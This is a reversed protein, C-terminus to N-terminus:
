LWRFKIQEHKIRFYFWKRFTWSSRWKQRKIERIRRNTFGAILGAIGKHGLVKIATERLCGFYLQRLENLNMSVINLITKSNIHSLKSINRSIKSALEKDKIINLLKISLLINQYTWNWKVEDIGIDQSDTFVSWDVNNLIKDNDEGYESSDEDEMEQRNIDININDQIRLTMNEDSPINGEVSLGTGDLVMENFVENIDLESRDNFALDGAEGLNVFFREFMEIDEKYSIIDKEYIKSKM